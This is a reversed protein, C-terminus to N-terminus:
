PCDEDEKKSEIRARGQRNLVIRWSGGRPTCYLFRSNSTPSTGNSKYRITSEPRGWNLHGNIANFQESRLIKGESIIRVLWGQSWHHDCNIGDSSGCMEVPQQYTIAHSRTFSLGSAISQRTNYARNHEILGILNPATLSLIVTVIALTILLEILSFGQYCIKRM